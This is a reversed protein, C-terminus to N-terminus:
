QTGPRPNEKEWDMMAQERAANWERVADRNVIQPIMDAIEDAQSDTFTYSLAVALREQPTPVKIAPTEGIGVNETGM